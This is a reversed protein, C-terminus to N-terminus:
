TLTAMQREKKIYLLLLLLLSLSWPCPFVSILLRTTSVPKNTTRSSSTATNQITKAVTWGEETLTYRRLPRGHEYVLDKQILTKMSSWATYFKTTDVPTTFSADCHPQALGILQAKSLGISSDERQTALGLLLAYAGSRLAPVYQKSKRPKKPPAADPLNEGSPRKKALV